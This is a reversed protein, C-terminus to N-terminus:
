DVLMKEIKDKVKTWEDNLISYYVTNREHGDHMIRAKRLVGERIGGIRDIANQSRINREDTKLQVRITSLNEFCHKLLLYKCQTNVPTRWVSTSLWTWGIELHRNPESIDLFRTSGVLKQQKHDHIVFPFEKGTEKAQLAEHVLAEMDSRTKIDKPMYDWIAPDNGAEYLADVDTMEMPRITVRKGELTVPEIWM